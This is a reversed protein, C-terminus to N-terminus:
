NTLYRGVLAVIPLRVSLNILRMPVSVRGLSRRSAATPINGIPCGSAAVGRSPLLGEPQLSRQDPRFSPVPVFMRSVVHWCGRYYTPPLRQGSNSPTLAHLRPPLDPTFDPSLEPAADSVATRSHQLPLPIGLTCQFAYPPLFVWHRAAKQVTVVSRPTPAFPILYRTTGGYVISVPHLLYRGKQVQTLVILIM